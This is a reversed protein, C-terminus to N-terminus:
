KNSRQKSFINGKLRNSQDIDAVSLLPEGADNRDQQAFFDRGNNFGGGIANPRRAIQEDSATESNVLCFLIFVQCIKNTSQPVLVKKKM